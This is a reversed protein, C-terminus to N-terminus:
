LNNFHSKIKNSWYECSLKYLIENSDLMKKHKEYNMELFGPELVEEFSDVLICPLENYVDITNPTKIIIPLTKLIIAEFAKPCPDIGNGVPCLIYKYKSVLEYFEFRNLSPEVWDFINPQEKIWNRITPRTIFEKGCVNFNRDMWISLVGEKSKQITEEKNRYSLLKEIYIDETTSMGCPYAKLKPHFALKNNTYWM